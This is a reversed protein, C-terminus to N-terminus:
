HMKRRLKEQIARQDEIHEQLFRRNQLEALQEDIAELQEELNRLNQDYSSKAARAGVRRQDGMCSDEELHSLGSLVVAAIMLVLIDSERDDM